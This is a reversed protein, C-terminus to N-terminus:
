MEIAQTAVENGKKPTERNRKSIVSKVIVEKAFLSREKQVNNQEKWDALDKYITSLHKNSHFTKGHRNYIEKIEKRLQAPAATKSETKELDKILKMTNDILKTNTEMDKLTADIKKFKRDVQTQESPTLEVKPKEPGDIFEPEAEAKSAQRTRIKRVQKKVSSPEIPKVAEEDYGDKFEATGEYLQKPAPVETYKPITKNKIYHHAYASAEEKDGRKKLTQYEKLRKMAVKNSAITKSAKNIKLAAKHIMKEADSKTAESSNLKEYLKRKKPLQDYKNAEDLQAEEDYSLYRRYNPTQKAFLQLAKTDNLDSHEQMFRELKQENEIQQARQKAEEKAFEKHTQEQNYKDTAEKRKAKGAKIVGSM